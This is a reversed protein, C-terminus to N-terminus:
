AVKDESTGSIGNSLVDSLASLRAALYRSTLDLQCFFKFPEGFESKCLVQKAEKPLRNIAFLATQFDNSKLSDRIEDFIGESKHAVPNTQSKFYRLAAELNSFVGSGAYKRKSELLRTFGIDSDLASLSPDSNIHRTILTPDSAAPHKIAFYLNYLITNRLLLKKFAEEKQGALQKYHQISSKARHAELLAQKELAERTKLTELELDDAKKAFKEALIKQIVETEAKIKTDAASAIAQSQRLFKQQVLQVTKELKKYLARSERVCNVLSERYNIAQVSDLKSRKIEEM